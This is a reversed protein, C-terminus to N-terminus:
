SGENELVTAGRLGETSSGWILARPGAAYRREWAQVALICNLAGTAAGVDGWSGAGTTYQTGDRFAFPLRLVTFGWEDTHQREGNIDCYLDDIREPPFNMGQTARRVVDTLGEGLLGEDSDLSRPEQATAVSRVGALSRLGFRAYSSRTAVAIMGAGEGPMFGARIGERALRRRSDLWDLTDAELYSDVGGVVCLETRREGIARVAWELARFVGARGDGLPEVGVRAGAPLTASQIDRCLRDADSRGFGPRPEPLALLLPLPDVPPRQHFIKSTVERLAAIGLEVMRQVGIVTPGIGRDWACKLPNGAGDVMTPHEGVRSVGARVAAASSEARLGVSTRAGLAVIHLDASM